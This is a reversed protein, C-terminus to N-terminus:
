KVAFLKSQVIGHILTRIGFGSPEANDLIREVHARDSFGVPAGTAYVVFRRTLNRALQREDAALLRKLEVIGEFTRGDALSGACEVTQALKFKFSHGNKGIGEVADGEEGISRYRARWGGAVDFSEM